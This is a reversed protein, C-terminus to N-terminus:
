FSEPDRIRMVFGFSYNRLERFYSGPHEDRIGSRSEKGMGSGRTLFPVPDPDLVSVARQNKVLDLNVSDPNHTKV